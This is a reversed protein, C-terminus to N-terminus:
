LDIDSLITNVQESLKMNSDLLTIPFRKSFCEIAPVTHTYYSQIRSLIIHKSFDDKRLKDTNEKRKSIRDMVKEDSADISIGRIVVDSNGSIINTVETIYNVQEVSRPFGDFVTHKETFTNRFHKALFGLVSLNLPDGTKFSELVMANLDEDLKNDDLLERLLQGGNFINAPIKKALSQALTSKGSGCKGFIFIQVNAM